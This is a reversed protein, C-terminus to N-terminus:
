GLAGGTVGPETILVPDESASRSREELPRHHCPRVSRDVVGNNDADLEQLAVRVMHDTPEPTELGPSRPSLM